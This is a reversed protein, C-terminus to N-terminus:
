ALPKLPGFTKSTPQIGRVAGIFDEPESTQGARPFRGQRGFNDIVNLFCNPALVMEKYLCLWSLSTSSIAKPRYRELQRALERGKRVFQDSQVLVGLKRGGGLFELDYPLRYKFVNDKM